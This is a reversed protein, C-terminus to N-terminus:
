PKSIKKYIIIYDYKNSFISRSSVSNSWSFSKQKNFLIIQDNMCAFEAHLTNTKANLKKM